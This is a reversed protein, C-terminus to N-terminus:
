EIMLEFQPLMATGKPQDISVQYLECEVLNAVTHGLNVAYTKDM